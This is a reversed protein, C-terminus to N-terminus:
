FWVAHLDDGVGITDGTVIAALRDQLVSPRVPKTLVADPGEGGEVPAAGSKALAGLSKITINLLGGERNGPSPNEDIRQEHKRFYERFENVLKPLGQRWEDVRALAESKGVGHLPEFHDCVAIM